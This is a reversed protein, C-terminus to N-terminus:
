LGLTIDQSNSLAFPTVGGVHCAQTYAKVGFLSCDGPLAVTWTAVPGAKPGLSALRSGFVLLVQGGNLTLNARSSYVVVLASAHGTLGVDVMATWDDGLSPTTATYSHPNSGGTRTLVSYQFANRIAVIDATSLACDWVKLEEMRGHLFDDPQSESGAGLRSIRAPQTFPGIRGPQVGLHVGDQFISSAMNTASYVVAIHHWRNLPIPAFQVTAGLDQGVRLGSNAVLISFSVEGRLDVIGEWDPWVASTSSLCLFLSVTCDQDPSLIGQPLDIHDNVGDFEFSFGSLGPLGRSAGMNTGHAGGVGDIVPGSVQDFGYHHALAPFAPPTKQTVQAADTSSLGIVACSLIAVFLRTKRSGPALITRESCAEIVKV